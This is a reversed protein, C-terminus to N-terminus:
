FTLKSNSTYMYVAMLIVDKAESKHELCPSINRKYREKKNKTFLLFRGGSEPTAFSVTIKGSDLSWQNGTRSLFNEPQILSVKKIQRDIPVRTRPKTAELCYDKPIARGKLTPSTGFM